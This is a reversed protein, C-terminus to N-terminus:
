TPSGCRTAFVHARPRSSWLATKVACLGPPSTEFETQARQSVRQLLQLTSHLPENRKTQGIIPSVCVGSGNVLAVKRTENINSHPPAATHGRREGHFEGEMEYRLLKCRSFVGYKCCISSLPFLSLVKAGNERGGVNKAPKGRPGAPLNHGSRPPSLASFRQLGKSLEAANRCSDAHTRLGEPCTM